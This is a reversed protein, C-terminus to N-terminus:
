SSDQHKNICFETIERGHLIWMMTMWCLTCNLITLIDLDEWVNDLKRMHEKHLQAKILKLSPQSQMSFNWIKLQILLNLNQSSICNWYNMWQLNLYSDEEWKLFLATNIFSTNLLPFREKKLAKVLNNACTHMDLQSHLQIYKALRYIIILTMPRVSCGLAM